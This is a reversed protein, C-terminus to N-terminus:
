FLGCIRSSRRGVRYTRSQAASAARWSLATESDWPAVQLQFRTDKRRFLIAAGRYAFGGNDPTPLNIREMKNDGHWTLPRELWQRGGAFLPPHGITVHEETDYDNYHFGFFRNGGRPLELQSNSGSSTMSGAEVWFAKATSPDARHAQVADLFAEVDDLPIPPGPPMPPDPHFPPPMGTRQREYAAIGSEDLPASARELEKWQAELDASGGPVSVVTGMETNYLLAARTLNASGVLVSTESPSTFLFLKPHFSAGPVKAARLAFGHADRMTRLAAPETLGFDFSTILTKPVAAWAPLGVRDALRPILEDVGTKTTYAVAIRLETTAPHGLAELAALMTGPRLQHQLLIETM